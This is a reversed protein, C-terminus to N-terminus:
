EFIDMLCLLLLLLLFYDPFDQNNGTLANTLAFDVQKERRLFSMIVLLRFRHYMERSYKVGSVHKNLHDSFYM